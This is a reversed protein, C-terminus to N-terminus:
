AICDRYVYGCYAGVIKEVLIESVEIADSRKSPERWNAVQRARTQFTLGATMVDLSQPNDELYLLVIHKGWVDSLSATQGQEAADYVSGPIYVTMNFLTPPLDGNILLNSQTYKILERIKSDRKVVRSVASPIIITNPDRGIAARVVEKAADLRNEINDAATGPFGANNFQQTGALAFGNSTGNGWNAITTYLTAVRQEREIMLKETLNKTTTEDPKVADDANDRERDSVLDALEHEVCTYDGTTKTWSPVWNPDAKDARLSQGTRFNEKGAIYYKDAEKKVTIRKCVEEAIM